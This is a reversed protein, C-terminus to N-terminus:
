GGPKAHEQLMNKINEIIEAESLGSKRSLESITARRVLLKGPLTNLLRFQPELKVAEDLLWPYREMLDRLRTNGTIDM